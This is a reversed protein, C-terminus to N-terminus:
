HQIKMGSNIQKAIDDPLHEASALGSSRGPRGVFDPRCEIKSEPSFSSHLRRAANINM